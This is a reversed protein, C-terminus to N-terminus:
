RSSDNLNSDSNDIPQFRKIVCGKMEISTDRQDDGNDEALIQSSVLLEGMQSSTRGFRPTEFLHIQTGKVFLGDLISGNQSINSNM